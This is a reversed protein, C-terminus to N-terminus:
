IPVTATAHRAVTNASLKFHVRHRWPLRTPTRRQNPHISKGRHGFVYFSEQPPKVLQPRGPYWLMSTRNSVVFRNGSTPYRTFEGSLRTESWHDTERLCSAILRLSCLTHAGTELLGPLTTIAEDSRQSLCRRHEVCPGEINALLNLEYLMTRLGHHRRTRTLERFDSDREDAM